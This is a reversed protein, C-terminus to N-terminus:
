NPRKKETLNNLFIIYIIIKRSLKKLTTIINIPIYIVLLNNNSM